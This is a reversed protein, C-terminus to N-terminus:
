FIVDVIGGGVYVEIFSRPIRGTLCCLFFRLLSFRLAGAAIAVFDFIGLPFLASCFVIIGMIRVSWKHSLSFYSSSSVARRGGQGVGYGVLEGLTGGVGALLPVLWKISACDFVAITVALGAASSVFPIPLSVASSLFPAVLAGIYGYRDFAEIRSSYHIIALSIGLALFFIISLWIAKKVWRNM